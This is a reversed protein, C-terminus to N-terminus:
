KADLLGLITKKRRSLQIVNCAFRFKPFKLVFEFHMLNNM